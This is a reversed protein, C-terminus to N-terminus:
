VGGRLLAALPVDPQDALGGIASADEPALRTAVTVSKNPWTSVAGAPMPEDTKADAEEAVQEDLRKPDKSIVANRRSIDAHRHQQRAM